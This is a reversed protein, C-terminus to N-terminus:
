TPTPRPPPPEVPDNDATAGAAHAQAAARRTADVSAATPGTTAAPQADTTASAPDSTPLPPDMLVLEVGLDGPAAGAVPKWGQPPAVAGALRRCLLQEDADSLGHARFLWKRARVVGLGSELAAYAWSDLSRRLYSDGLAFAARAPLRRPPTAPAAFLSKWFSPELLGHHLAQTTAVDVGGLLQRRRPDGLVFTTPLGVAQAEVGLSSALTLTTTGPRAHFLTAYGNANTMVVTRGTLRRLHRAIGASDPRYPHEVLVCGDHGELVHAVAADFDPWDAFRGREILVADCATQGLVLPWGDPLELAPWAQRALLASFRKTQANLEGVPLAVRALHAALAPCNTAAGLCLDRLFRLPHIHFSIYPHGHAHLMRRVGPPLEFGIVLDSDLLEDALGTRVDFDTSDFRRAWAGSADDAYEHLVSASRVQRRLTEIDPAPAVCHVQVGMRPWETRGGLVSLLWRMNGIQAHRYGEPGVSFRMLDCTFAVRRIVAPTRVLPDQGAGSAARTVTRAM